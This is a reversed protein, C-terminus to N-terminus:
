QKNELLLYDTYADLLKKIRTFPYIKPYNKNIVAIDRESLMSIFHISRENLILNNSEDSDLNFDKYLTTISKPYVAIIKKSTKAM